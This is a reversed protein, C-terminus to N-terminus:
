WSSSGSKRSTQIMFDYGAEMNPNCSRAPNAGSGTWSRNTDSCLSTTALCSADSNEKRTGSSAPPHNGRKFGTDCILQTYAHGWNQAADRHGYMPRKLKVCMSPEADETPLEVYVERIADALFFAGSMNVFDIKMEPQKDRRDAFVVRETTAASFLLKTAESPPTATFFALRKDM